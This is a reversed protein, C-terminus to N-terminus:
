LRTPPSDHSLSDASSRYAHAEYLHLNYASTKYAFFEENSGSLKKVMNHLSLIVGYVLKAEEDFLLMTSSAQQVDMGSAQNSGQAPLDANNTAVVVGTSSSLTNRPSNFGSVHAPPPQAAAPGHAENTALQTPQPPAPRTPHSSLLLRTLIPTPHSHSLLWALGPCHCPRGDWFGPQLRPGAPKHRKDG